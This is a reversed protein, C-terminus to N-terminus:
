FIISFNCKNSTYLRFLFNNETYLTFVNCIIHIVYLYVLEINGSEIYKTLYLPEDPNYNDAVLENIPSAVVGSIIILM